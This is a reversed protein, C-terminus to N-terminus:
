RRGLKKIEIIKGPEESGGLLVGYDFIEHDIIKRVNERIYLEEFSKGHISALFKVGSNVSDLIADCDSKGGIEDCVVIEPSLVRIATEIGNKKNYGDLVDAFSGIKNQPEGHYVAAIESREDVISIRYKEGLISCLNKLITTKGSLPEGIILVSVPRKNFLKHYIEEGGSNAQGAIRFNLSSIYKIAEINYNTGVATGCLGVRNGGEITIFGMSIEKEFSHVSYDCVAKFSETIDERSCLIGLSNHITLSGNKTVFFNKGFSSVSLPRNTRIRIENINKATVMPMKKLPESLNQPLYKIVKRFNNLSDM